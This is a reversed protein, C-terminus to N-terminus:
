RSQSRGSLYSVAELNISRLCHFEVLNMDEQLKQIM